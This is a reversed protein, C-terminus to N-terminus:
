RDRASARREGRTETLGALSDLYNQVTGVPMGVEAANELPLLVDGLAREMMRDPRLWEEYYRANALTMRWRLAENELLHGAVEVCEDPNNFSLYNVGEMFEPVEHVLRESVIAAGQAVYEGLKWGNSGHLGMTAVCIEHERVIKLYSRRDVPATAPLLVDSFHEQAHPTHIFGGTFRSGFAKRLRRLCEARMDNIARREGNKEASRDPDDPEWTRCMFLIRPEVPRSIGIGTVESVTIRNSRGLLKATAYKLASGMGALALRRKLEFRDFQDKLVEYNLGLRRVKHRMHAPIAERQFSRKLYVDCEVDAIEPGDHVDIYYSLGNMELQAHFLHVTRLHQPAEGDVPRAAVFRQSLAIRGADHLLALGTYVQSLHAEDSWVTLCCPVAIKSNTM